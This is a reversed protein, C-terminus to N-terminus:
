NAAPRADAAQLMKWGTWGYHVASWGTAAVTLLIMLWELIRPFEGWMTARGLLIALATFIQIATSLKGWVTPEFRRIKTFLIAFGAFGLILLDRGFVMATLWWPIVRDVGLVLYTGSLLLKDAIPDLYAGARSTAHFRRALYGDLGDSIGAVFCWVLAREYLRNWILILIVPVLCLRALSILNPLTRIM